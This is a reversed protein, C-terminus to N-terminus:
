TKKYFQSKEPPLGFSVNSAGDVETYVHEAIQRKDTLHQQQLTQKQVQRQQPLQQQQQQQQQPIPLELPQSISRMEVEEVSGHNPHGQTQQQQQHQQQQQQQQEGLLVITSRNKRRKTWCVLKTVLFTGIAVAFAGGFGWWQIRYSAWLSEHKLDIKGLEERIEKNIRDFGIRSVNHSLKEIETTTVKWHVNEVKDIEFKAIQALGIEATIQTDSERTTISLSESIYSCNDPVLVVADTLLRHESIGEACKSMLKIEEIETSVLLLRNRAFEVPIVSLKPGFRVDRVGCTRTSGLKNCFEFSTLTMVHFKDNAKERLVLIELGYSKVRDLVLKMSPTPIVRILREAKMVLPVRLTVWVADDHLAFACVPNRYYERWEWSGFVPGLGVKNAEFSQLNEVLFQKAIAKESCFGKMSDMKVEVLSDVNSEVAEALALIEFYYTLTYMEEDLKGIEVQNGGVVSNLKRIEDNQKEIAHRNLDIDTYETKTNDNLKLIATQMALINATNKQWDNPGPNGFLDSILNGIIEISRTHRSNSRPNGDVRYLKAVIRDFKTGIGKALVRSLNNSKSKELRYIAKELTLLGDTTPRLDIKAHIYASPTM